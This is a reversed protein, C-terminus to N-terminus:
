ASATRDVLAIVGCAKAYIGFLLEEAAMAALRASIDNIEVAGDFTAPNPLGNAAQRERKVDTKGASSFTRWDMLRTSAFGNVGRLSLARPNM